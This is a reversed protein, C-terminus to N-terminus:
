SAPVPTPTLAPESGRSVEVTATVRHSHFDISVDALNVRDGPQLDTLEPSSYAAISDGPDVVGDHSRDVLFVVTLSSSPPISLDFTGDTALTGVSAPEHAAPDENPALDAYAFVLISGRTGAEAVRGSVAVGGASAALGTESPAPGGGCAAFAAILALASFRHATM